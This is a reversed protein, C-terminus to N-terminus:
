ASTAAAKSIGESGQLLYKRYSRDMMRHLLVVVKECPIKKAAMPRGTGRRHDTSFSSEDANKSRDHYPLTNAGQVQAIRRDDQM